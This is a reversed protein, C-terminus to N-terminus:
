PLSQAQLGQSCDSPAKKFQPLALSFILRGSCVAPWECFLPVSFSWLLALRRRVLGDGGSTPPRPPPSLPLSLALSPLGEWM